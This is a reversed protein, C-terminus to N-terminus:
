IGYWRELIWRVGALSSCVGFCATLVTLHRESLLSAFRRNSLLLLPLPAIPIYYRSQVFRVTTADVPNVGLYAIANIVAYTAACVVVIIAKARVDLAFDKRGDVLAVAAAVGLHMGSLWRSLEGPYLTGHLHKVWDRQLDVLLTQAFRLPHAAMLGVQRAPDADPAIYQPIYLDRILWLWGALAAASTGAVMLFGLAYRRRGGLAAAPCIGYLLSLPLYALKSVSLAVACLVLSVVTSGGRSPKPAACLRLLMAVFLLATGNTVGDATVMSMQRIALPALALLVFVHKAVPTIRIAVCVLTLATLLGAVRSVYLLTVPSLMLMRGVAIVIAHPLYPVAPYVATNRFDVFTREDPRLPGARGKLSAPLMGGVLDDRREAVLQGTSIQYARRLHAAEDAGQYAPIAAIFFVGVVTGIVLFIIEPRLARPLRRRLRHEARPTM